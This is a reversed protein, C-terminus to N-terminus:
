SIRFDMRESMDQGKDDRENTRNTRQRTNRKTVSTGQKWPEIYRIHHTHTKQSAHACIGAQKGAFCVFLCVCANPPQYRNGDRGAGQRIANFQVLADLHTATKLVYLVNNSHSFFWQAFGLSSYIHHTNNPKLSSTKTCWRVLRM